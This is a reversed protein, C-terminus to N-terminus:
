REIPFAGSEPSILRSKSVWDGRNGPSAGHPSDRKDGRNGPSLFQKKRGDNPDITSSEVTLFNLYPWHKPDVYMSREYHLRYWTVGVWEATEPPHGRRTQIVFPTDILYDRARELTSKSTWGYRQMVTFSPTLRGNNGGTFQLLLDVLLSRASSPLARYAPSELVQVPIAVFRFPLALAVKSRDPKAM